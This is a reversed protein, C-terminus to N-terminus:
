QQFVVLDADSQRGPDNHPAAFGRHGNFAIVRARPHERRALALSDDTSGNDVVVIDFRDRPFTQAELSPLCEALHARGNLNLVLVAATPRTM